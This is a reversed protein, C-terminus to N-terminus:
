TAEKLLRYKKLEDKLCLDLSPGTVEIKSSSAVDDAYLSSSVMRAARFYYKSLMHALSLIGRREM